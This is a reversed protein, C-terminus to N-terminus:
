KRTAIKPEEAQSLYQDVTLGLGKEIMLKYVKNKNLTARMDRNATLFAGQENYWRHHDLFVSIFFFNRNFGDFSIVTDAGAKLWDQVLSSGFCAQMFVLNLNKLQGQLEDIEKFSMFYGTEGTTLHNPIGHSMVILDYKKGQKEMYKLSALINAYKAQELPLYIVKDYVDRFLPAFQWWALENLTPPNDSKYAASLLPAFQESSFTDATLFVLNKTTPLMKKPAKGNTRAPAASHDRKMSYVTFDSHKEIDLFTKKPPESPLMKCGSLVLGIMAILVLNIMKM